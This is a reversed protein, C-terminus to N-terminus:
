FSGLEFYHSIPWRKLVQKVLRLSCNPDVGVQDKVGDSKAVVAVLSNKVPLMFPSSIDHPLNLDVLESKISGTHSPEM